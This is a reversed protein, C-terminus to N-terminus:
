WPKFAANRLACAVDPDTLTAWVWLFLVVPGVQLFTILSDLSKELHSVGLALPNIFVGKKLTQAATFSGGVFRGFEGLLETWLNGIFLAEGRHPHM